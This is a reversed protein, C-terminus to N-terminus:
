HTLIKLWQKIGTLLVTDIKSIIARKCAIKFNRWNVVGLEQMPTMKSVCYPCKGNCAETGTVISFTSFNM